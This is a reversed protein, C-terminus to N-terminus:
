PLRQWDASVGDVLFRPDAGQRTVRWIEHDECSGSRCQTTFAIWRGDPSFTPERDPVDNTTRRVSSRGDVSNAEYIKAGTFTELDSAWALRRGDPSWAPQDDVDGDSTIRRVDRGALSMTYIERSGTRDSAFAIRGGSPSWSPNYDSAGAGSVRHRNTGDANMVWIESVPQAADLGRVVTFALRAGNPSWTPSSELEPTSTLRRLGQGMPDSVFLDRDGEDEWSFSSDSVYAVQRGDPSWVPASDETATNVASEQVDVGRPSATRLWGLPPHDGPPAAFVLRGNRGPFAAQAAPAVLLAVLAVVLTTPTIIKTFLGLAGM